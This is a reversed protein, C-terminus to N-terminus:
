KYLFGENIEKELQRIKSPYSAQPNVVKGNENVLLYRPYTFAGNNGFKDIINTVLTNNALIHLGELDYFQIMEKWVKETSNRGECIYLATIDKSKLLEGLKEKNEFEKKCPGCWTGWIDVYIKKGSLQKILEDFTNVNEYNKVVQVKKNPQNNELKKHFDIIPQISSHLYTNYPSDPYENKFSEYMEIIEKSNDKTQWSELFIYSALYYELEKGELYKKPEVINYKLRKDTEYMKAMDKPDPKESAYRAYWVSNYVLAYFWPSRATDSGNLKSIGVKEDWFNKLKEIKRKDKKNLHKRLLMTALGTELASYYVKRDLVALDYFDKSIENKELLEGFRSIEKEKLTDMKSSIELPISDKYFENLGMMYFDPAPLTNYFNQAISDKSIVLFKKQNTKLEFKIDYAKGPEVLLVGGAKGPVYMTVFSPKEIDMKIQFAGTSDITISKKDGYFWKGEIPSTYEIKGSHKGDIKGNIIIGKEKKSCGIFGLILFALIIKKVRM